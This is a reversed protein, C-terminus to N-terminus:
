LLLSTCPVFGDFMDWKWLTVAGCIPCFTVKRLDAGVVEDEAYLVFGVRITGLEVLSSLPARCRPCREAV